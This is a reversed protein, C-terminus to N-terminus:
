TTRRPFGRFGSSGSTGQFSVPATALSTWSGLRDGVESAPSPGFLLPLPRTGFVCWDQSRLTVLELSAWADVISLQKVGHSGAWLRVQQGPRSVVRDWSGPEFAQDFTVRVVFSTARLTQLSPPPRKIVLPEAGRSTLSPPATGATLMWLRRTCLRGNEHGPILISVAGEAWSPLTVQANPCPFLLTLDNAHDDDRDAQYLDWLEAADDLSGVHAVWAVGESVDLEESLEAASSVFGLASRATWLKRDITWSDPCPTSDRVRTDGTTGAAQRRRRRTRSGSAKSAPPMAPEAALAPWQEAYGDDEDAWYRESTTVWRTPASWTSAAYDDGQTDAPERWPQQWSRDGWTHAAHGQAHWEGHQQKAEPRRRLAPSRTAQTVLSKLEQLLNTPRRVLLAQLEAYLWVEDDDSHNPECKELFERLGQLM